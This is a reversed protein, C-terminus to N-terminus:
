ADKMVNYLELSSCHIGYLKVNKYKGMRPDLTEDPPELDFTKVNEKIKCFSLPTWVLIWLFVKVWFVFHSVMPGGSFHWSISNQQHASSPVVPLKTIKWVPGIGTNRFTGVAKHNELLPLSELDGSQIWTHKRLDISGMLWSKLHM